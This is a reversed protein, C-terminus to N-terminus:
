PRTDEDYPFLGLGIRVYYAGSIATLAGTLVELWDQAHPMDWLVTRQLMLFLVLCIQAATTAKSVFTPRISGRVDAGWFQLLALGGVIIGDRSVVLIALWKPLWGQMALCIYTTVLLVKDALPDLMAGLPSRQKLVRALFGDLADSVGAVAFLIWAIDFRDNVFAVVFAPTLLIRAVTIANPLTWNREPPM